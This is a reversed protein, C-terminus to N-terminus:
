AVEMLEEEGYVSYVHHEEVTDLWDNWERQAVCEKPTHERLAPINQECWDCRYTKEM